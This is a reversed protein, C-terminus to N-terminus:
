NLGAQTLKIACGVGVTTGCPIGSTSNGQNSFYLSSAQPYTMTNADGDVIIGSPGNIEPISNAISLTSPTGTVNISMVCGSGGGCNTGSGLNYVGFFIQDQTAPPANPNFFETVPACETSGTAVALTAADIAPNMTGVPNAFPSPPVRGSNTFGIRQITPTSSAAASGCIYLSGTSGNGTLYTNDFAGAHIHHGTGGGITASVYAKLTVDSQLVATTASTGGGNNGYFAFVKGTSSDVIPADMVKHVGFINITTSGLCPPSGSACTGVASFTERVYSLVGSSDEIFINGSVSDLTPSTLNITGPDVAIPWQGAVVVETPTRGAVGFADIIKHLIGKDDGVYVADRQYDYFPSSATDTPSGNLNISIMCAGTVPCDGALGDATWNKAIAPAIASGIAGGDGAHWKLLHLIAGTSETEVFAVKSGDGSLVPSTQVTGTTASGTAGFNTNYSWYVSPNTVRCYPSGTGAYLNNYAIISAQGGTVGTVNTPFTAYDNTCDPNSQLNFSFKAPYVPWWTTDNDPVGTSGGLGLSQGWDRRFPSQGASIGLSNGEGNELEPDVRGPRRGMRSLIQMWYRPERQVRSAKEFSLPQSFVVHQHSWDSIMPIREAPDQASTACVLVFIALAIGIAASYAIVARSGHRQMHREGANAGSCGLQSRRHSDM